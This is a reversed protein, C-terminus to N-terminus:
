VIRVLATDLAYELDIVIVIVLDIPLAALYQDGRSL